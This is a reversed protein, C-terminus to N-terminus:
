PDGAAPAGQELHTRSNLYDVVFLGNRRRVRSLAAPDITITRLAPAPAGVIHAVLARLPDAHSVILVTEGPHAGALRLLGETMRAAMAAVPEVGPVVEGAANARVDEPFRARIESSLMGEWRPFARETFADDREVPVGTTRAILAATEAARELPSTVIRRLPVGALRAALAAADRRGQANLSIGPLRGALRAAANWETMGHRVLYVFTVM